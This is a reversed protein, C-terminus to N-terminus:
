QQQSEHLLERTRLIQGGLCHAIVLRMLARSQQATLPDSYDDHAMDLLSRGAVRVVGDPIREGHLIPLTGREPTYIYEAAADIAHGHADRALDLGYGIDALMRREFRRLVSAPAKEERLAALAEHYGTYLEAHPDDRRTLKLILENLYFGCILARGSMQGQGGQWEARHLLHLESRGSWSLLLPQFAMLTGRLASRPRRAGKAILGLRGFNRSLVEVVLSTEKFPYSHLVYGLEGERLDLKDRPLRSPANM